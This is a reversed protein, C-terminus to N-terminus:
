DHDLGSFPLLASVQALLLQQTPFARTDQIFAAGAALELATASIQLASRCMMAIDITSPSGQCTSLLHLCLIAEHVSLAALKSQALEHEALPRGNIKRQRAYSYSEHVLRGALGCLKAITEDMAPSGSAPNGLDSATEATYALAVIDRTRVRSTTGDGWSPSSTAALVSATSIPKSSM